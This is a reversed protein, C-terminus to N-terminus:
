FRRGGGPSLLFTYSAVAVRYYDARAPAPVDFYRDDLAPVVGAVPVQASAPFATATVVILVLGLIM